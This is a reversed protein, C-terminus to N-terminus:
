YESLEITIQIRFSVTMGTTDEVTDSVTDASDTIGGMTDTVTGAPDTVVSDVAGM